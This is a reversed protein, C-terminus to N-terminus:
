HDSNNSDISFKVYLKRVGDKQKSVSKSTSSYVDAVQVLVGDFSPAHPVFPRPLVGVNCQDIGGTVHFAAIATEKQGFSNRNQITRLRLVVDEEVLSGYIDHHYCSRGSTGSEFGVIKVTIGSPHHSCFNM